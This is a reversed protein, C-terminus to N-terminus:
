EKILKGANLINGGIDTIQYLYLGDALDSLPYTTVSKNIIEERVIAGYINCIKILAANSNQQLLININDQVPNPYININESDFSLESIGVSTCLSTIIGGSGIITAPTSVMTAPATIITNPSTQQTSPNSTITVTNGENCGSNGNADTKILYVDGNGAGFSETEGAIIYGGDTTQQVSFGYDDSTGGFTKSWLTVGNADTKIVYIDLNGAGFNETEGAIIYGDDTTQQVSYCFDEYTGGFTKTWLTDGNVTTKILYFDYGGAGFSETNGAIIYGGDITQHISYGYDDSTGGFTKSWLIVGNADTKILYVDLNGAGFNETEGVIIYGGDATHKVSNCWDYNTGGYTKSWLTDGNATTKILFFDTTPYNGTTGAIVYGGDSTQQVHNGYDDSIGDFTKTWLTDGNADTKILYFNYGGAGFSETTGAIIYGGDATQQVSNVYDDSIGGFTKTWLTDGNATTKILYVDYGGAGFSETEGAIIYGGDTTKQVSYGYDYNAGGFTKQFTIQASTINSICIMMILAFLLNKKKM